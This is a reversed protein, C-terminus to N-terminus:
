LYKSLYNIDKGIVNCLIEGAFILNGDADIIKKRKDLSDKISIRINKTNKLNRTSSIFDSDKVIHEMNNSTQNSFQHLEWRIVSAYKTIINYINQLDDLNRNHVVTNISVKVGNKDLLNMIKEFKELHNCSENRFIEVISNNSGDLPIGFLDVLGCIEKISYNNLFEKDLFPYGTTDLHVRLDNDKAYKIIDMFDERLLPDGGTLTVQKYNLTALQHLLKRIDQTSMQGLGRGNWICGKCYMPCKRSIAICIKKMDHSLYKEIAVVHKNDKERGMKIKWELLDGITQFPYGQILQKRKSCKSFTYETYESPIWKIYICLKDDMFSIVPSDDAKSYKLKGKNKVKEWENESVLIDIDNIEEMDRIGLAYMIGSGMIIYEDPNLNLSDLKKFISNNKLDINKM